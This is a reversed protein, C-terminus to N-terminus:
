VRWTLILSTVEVSCDEAPLAKLVDSSNSVFRTLRFGGESTASVLDKVLKVQTNAISQSSIAGFIHVAMRFEELPRNIDGNPWWLFRVYDQNEPPIKIQFLCLKM